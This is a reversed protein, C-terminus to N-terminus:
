SPQHRSTTCHHPSLTNLQHPPATTELSVGCHKTGTVAAAIESPCSTGDRVAAGNASNAVAPLGSRLPWAVPSTSRRRPRTAAGRGRLHHRTRERQAGVFCGSDAAAACSPRREQSDVDLPKALGSMLSSNSSYGSGFRQARPFIDTCHRGFHTDSHRVFLQQRARCLPLNM